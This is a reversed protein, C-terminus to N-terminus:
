IVRRRANLGIVKRVPLFIFPLCPQRVPAGRRSESLFGRFFADHTTDKTDSPLQQGDYEKWMPNQLDLRDGSKWIWKDDGALTCGVGEGGIWVHTDDPLM